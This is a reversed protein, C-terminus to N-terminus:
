LGSSIARLHRLLTVATIFRNNGLWAEDRNSVAPSSLSAKFDSPQPCLAPPTYEEGATALPM